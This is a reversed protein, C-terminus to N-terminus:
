KPPWKRMSWRGLVRGAWLTPWTLAICVAITIKAEPSM